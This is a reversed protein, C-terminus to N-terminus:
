EGGGSSVGGCKVMLERQVELSAATSAQGMVECEGRPESGARWYGLPVVPAGVIHRLM